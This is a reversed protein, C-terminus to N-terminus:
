KTTNVALCERMDKPMTEMWVPLLVESAKQLYTMSMLADNLYCALSMLEQDGTAIAKEVFEAAHKGFNSFHKWDALGEMVAKYACRADVFSQAIAQRIKNRQEASLTKHPGKAARDVMEKTNM